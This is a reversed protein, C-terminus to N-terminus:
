PEFWVKCASTFPKLSPRILSLFAESVVVFFTFVGGSLCCNPGLEFIPAGGEDAPPASLM